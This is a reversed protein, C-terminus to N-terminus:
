TINIIYTYICIGCIGTNGFWLNCGGHNEVVQLQQGNAPCGLSTTSLAEPAKKIKHCPIQTIDEFGVHKKTTKKRPGLHTNGYITTGGFCGLITM